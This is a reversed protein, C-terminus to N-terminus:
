IRPDKEAIGRVSPSAIRNNDCKMMLAVSTTVCVPTRRDIYQSMVIAAVPVVVRAYSTTFMCILKFLPKQLVIVHM